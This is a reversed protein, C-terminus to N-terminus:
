IVFLTETNKEMFSYVTIIYWKLHKQTSKESKQHCQLAQTSIEAWTYYSLMYINEHNIKQM